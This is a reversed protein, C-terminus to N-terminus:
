DKLFETRLYPNNAKEAALTTGPGHGPLLVTDEPFDAVLSRLSERMQRLDAGPLDTRGITGQFIVDGTLVVTQTADSIRLLTSGRTHGPASYPTVTLGAVELPEHDRLEAPRALEDAGLLQEILPILREGLGASPKTLMPHDAAACYVPVNWVESLTAASGVHDLHGHTCLIAAPTWELRALAAVILESGMVGPDVVLCQGSDEPAVLFCNARWPSVVINEIRM